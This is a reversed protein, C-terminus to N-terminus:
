FHCSLFSTTTDSNHRTGTIRSCSLATGPSCKKQAQPGDCRQPASSPVEQGTEATHALATNHQPHLCEKMAYPRSCLAVRSPISLLSPLLYSQLPVTAPPPPWLPSVPYPGRHASGVRWSRLSQTYHAACPSSVLLSICIHRERLENTQTKKEYNLFLFKFTLTLQHYISDISIGQCFVKKNGM